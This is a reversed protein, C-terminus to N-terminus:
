SGYSIRLADNEIRLPRISAKSNMTIGVYNSWQAWFKTSVLFLETVQDIKKVLFEEPDCLGQM